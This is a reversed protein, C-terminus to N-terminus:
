DFEVSSLGRDNVDDKMAADFRGAPDLTKNWEVIIGPITNKV